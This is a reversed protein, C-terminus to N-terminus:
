RFLDMEKSRVLDSARGEGQMEPVGRMLVIPSGEAAQGMLLSASAAVEDALGLQSSKLVRGRRDTRGRLDLLAPLGSM